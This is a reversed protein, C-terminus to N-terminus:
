ATLSKIIQSIYEAGTATVNGGYFTISERTNFYFAKVRIDKFKKYHAPMNVYIEETSYLSRTGESLFEAKFEPSLNETKITAWIKVKNLMVFSIRIETDHYNNTATVDYPSCILIPNAGITHNTEYPELNLLINKLEEQTNPKFSIFEKDIVSTIKESVKAADAWGQKIATKLETVRDQAQQLETTHTM